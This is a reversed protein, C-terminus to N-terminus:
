GPHRSSDGGTEVRPDRHAARARFAQRFVLVLQVLILAFALFFAALRITQNSAPIFFALILVLFGAIFLWRGRVVWGVLIGM